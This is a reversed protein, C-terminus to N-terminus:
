GHTEELVKNLRDAMRHAEERTRFIIKGVAPLDISAVNGSFANFKGLTVCFAVEFCDYGVRPWTKSEELREIALRGGEAIDFKDDPSCRAVGKYEGEIATITRGDVLIRIERPPAPEFMEEAWFGQPEYEKIDYYDPVDSHYRITVTQGAYRSMGPTVEWEGYKEGVVLDERVRVKDGVKYKM